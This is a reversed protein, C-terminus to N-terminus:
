VKEAIVKRKRQFTVAIRFLLPQAMVKMYFRFKENALLKAM